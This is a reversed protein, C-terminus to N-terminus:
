SMGYNRSPGDQNKNHIDCYYISDYFIGCGCSWEDKDMTDKVKIIEGQEILTRCVSCVGALNQSKDGCNSCEPQSVIQDNYYSM